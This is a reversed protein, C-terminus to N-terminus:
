TPCTDTGGELTVRATLQSGSTNNVPIPDLYFGSPPLALIVSMNGNGGVLSGNPYQPSTITITNSPSFSYGFYATTNYTTVPQPVTEMYGSGSAWGYLFVTGPPANTVATATFTLTTPGNGFVACTAPSVTLSTGVIAGAVTPAATPSATPFPTPSMTPSPSASAMPSATATPSTTPGATPTASASPLVTGAPYITFLAEKGSTIVTLPQGVSLGGITAQGSNSVTVTVNVVTTNLIGDGRDYSTTITAPYSGAPVSSPVNLTISTLSLQVNTANSFDIQVLPPVTTAALTKRASSQLTTTNIALTADAGTALTVAVCTSSAAPLAGLSVTGTVGGAAPLATTHAQANAAICNNAVAAPLSAPAAVPITNVSGGGGCANLLGLALVCPAVFRVYHSTALSPM